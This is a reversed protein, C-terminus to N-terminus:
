TNGVSLVIKGVNENAEMARHADGAHALPVVRDVVARLDGSALAPLTEREFARLIATKDANSRTRMVLGLIQLRRRLVAGLDLDVHSGGMLGVVVLRGAEALYSVNRQFMSSGVFDVIVDVGRGATVERVARQTADMDSTDVVRTAGLARVAAQKHESRVGAIVNAGGHVALQVCATGVGGAAGHVLLTETPALRGLRLVAERATLFAEPIAAAHAFDLREPIPLTHLAPVVVREAYGGGALLAMVRDGVAVSGVHEGVEEVVGACELGLITSAGPPPPYSGRRQLLDARNLAAARVAIAVDTPGVPPPPVDQLELV